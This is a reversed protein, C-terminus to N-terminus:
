EVHMLVQSAGVSQGNTCLIEVIKGSVGATIENMVKMAEVICVKTDPTVMDGVKVYAPA